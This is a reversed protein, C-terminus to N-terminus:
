KEDVVNLGASLTGTGSGYVYVLRIYIYARRSIDFAHTGTNGSVSVASGALDNWNTSGDLSTQIKLTGVPSTGTWSAELYYSDAGKVKYADCNINAGMSKAVAYDAKLTEQNPSM